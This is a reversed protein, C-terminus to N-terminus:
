KDLQCFIPFKGSIISFMVMEYLMVAKDNNRNIKGTIPDFANPLECLQRTLYMSLEIQSDKPIEIIQGPGIPGKDIAARSKNLAGEVSPELKTPSLITKFGQKAVLDDHAKLIYDKLGSDINIKNLYAEAIERTINM